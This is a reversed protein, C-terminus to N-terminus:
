LFLWYNCRVIKSTTLKVFHFLLCLSGFYLIPYPQSPHPFYHVNLAVQSFVNNFPLKLLSAAKSHTFLFFLQSFPLASWSILSLQSSAYDCPTYKCIFASDLHKFSSSFQSIDGPSTAMTLM